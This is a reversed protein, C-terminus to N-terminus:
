CCALLVHSVDGRQNSSPLAIVPTGKLEAAKQAALDKYRQKEEDSLQQWRLGIAKGVAAVNAKGDNEAAIEAQVSERVEGAFLFYATPGRPPM